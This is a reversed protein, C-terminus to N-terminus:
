PLRVPEKEVRFAHARLGQSQVWNYRGMHLLPRIGCLAKCYVFRSKKWHYEVVCIFMREVCLKRVQGHTIRHLQFCCM